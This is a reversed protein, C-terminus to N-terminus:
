LTELLHLFYRSYARAEKPAITFYEEKAHTTGEISSMKTDASQRKELYDDIAQKITEDKMVEVMRGYKKVEPTTLSNLIERALSVPMGLDVVKRSLIRKEVPRRKLVTQWDENSATTKKLDM